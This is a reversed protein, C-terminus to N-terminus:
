ALRMATAPPAGDAVAFQAVTEFGVSHYFRHNRPNTTELAVQLGADRAADVGPALVQRGLGRGQHDPDVALMHLYAFPHPPWHEAFRQFAPGLEAAREIGVLSVLVGPLTPSTTWEVPADSPTRWVATAIVDGDEEVTDIRLDSRAYAEVLLGMFMAIKDVRGEADPFIWEMLPDDAFGRAITRRVGDLAYLSVM